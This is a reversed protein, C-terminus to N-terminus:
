QLLDFVISGLMMLLYGAAAALTVALAIILSAGEPLPSDRTGPRANCAPSCVDTACGCDPWQACPISTQVRPQDGMHDINM